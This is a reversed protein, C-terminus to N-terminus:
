AAVRPRALERIRQEIELEAEFDASETHTFGIEGRELIGIFLEVYQPDLQTGAVRRLEAIAEQSPVPQHYTDRGTMVDYVDGISVM